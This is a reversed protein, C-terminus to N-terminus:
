IDESHVFEGHSEVIITVGAPAAHQALERLGDSIRAFTVKKDEGKVFQNPFVRVYPAKMEHALDIFRRAEDMHKARKAPDPEHMQASAGLDSIALNAASLDALTGKLRSGSFEPCKPLDMQDQIGRLELAAFGYQSTNKVITNWDWKPCGLTSVGIPLKDAPKSSGIAPFAVATTAIRLLDRRTM